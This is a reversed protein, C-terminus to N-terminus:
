PTEGGKRTARRQERKIKRYLARRERRNMGQAAQYQANTLPVYRRQGRADKASLESATIITGKADM